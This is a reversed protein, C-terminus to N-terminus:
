CEWVEEVIGKRVAHVQRFQRLAASGSAPIVEVKDGIVLDRSLPGLELTMSSWDMGLVQVDPLPRHHATRLIRPEANLNSVVPLRSRGVDLVARELKSRSFVSAIVTLLPNPSKLDDQWDFLNGTRIETLLRSELLLEFDGEAAASIVDCRIKERILTAKIDQLIGSASQLRRHCEESNRELSGLNVSLGVVEVGRLSRIGSALDRADLGPRVGFGTQGTHVEILVPVRCGHSCAWKSIEEAQVYHDCVTVVESKLNLDALVTQQSSSVPPRSLTVNLPILGLFRRAQDVSELTVGAAGAAILRATIEPLQHLSADPRWAVQHERLLAAIRAIRRDLEDLDICLAPTEVEKHPRGIM